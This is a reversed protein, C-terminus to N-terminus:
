FVSASGSGVDDAVAEKLKAYLDPHKSRLFEIIQIDERRIASLDVGELHVLRLLETVPRPMERGAEYRSGGSQTVGIKQWFEEQNLGLKQRIERPNNIKQFLGM